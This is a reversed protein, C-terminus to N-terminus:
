FLKREKSKFIRMLYFYGPLILLCGFSLAIVLSKIVAPEAAASYIDLFSRDRFLIIRPYLPALGAMFILFLQAGATIRSLNRKGLDLLKKQPYLLLFSFIICVIARPNTFFFSWRKPDTLFFVGHTILGMVVLGKFVHSTLKRWKEKHNEAEISLFLSANFIMLATIFAGMSFAFPNLWHQFYRSYIDTDSLSFHGLMLSGIIIGLWMTCWCSSIGFIWKYVVQSKDQIPDYHMFTFSAGRFIIGVVLAGLPFHFYESLFWFIEPFGNFTIVLALILWIHNAEWVPGVAKGILHSKEESEIGVPLLELIGEGFDAGAL